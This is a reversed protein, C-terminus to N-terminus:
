PAVQGPLPAGLVRLRDRCRQITKVADRYRQTVSVIECDLCFDKYLVGHGCGKMSAVYPHNPNFEM